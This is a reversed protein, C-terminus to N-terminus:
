IVGIEAANYSISTQLGSLGSEATMRLVNDGPHMMFLDSSEDLTAFIDEDGRQVYLRGNERSVTVTDGQTLTMNLTLHELTNINVIGFNTTETSTTFRATFPVDMAGSNVCNTYASENRIGFVHSNYLVPFSFAATYGGMVYQNGKINMWYPTECYVMMDFTYKGYRSRFVYPTKKIHIRCFYQDDFVLRGTTFVPLARLMARAASEPDSGTFTGRITRSIGNVSQNEVTEGIQQYGQSTGLTVDVGSLPTIDFVNGYEYGFRVIKGADTEIRANYVM